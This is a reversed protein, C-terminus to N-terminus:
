EDKSTDPLDLQLGSNPCPNSSTGCHDSNSHLQNTM